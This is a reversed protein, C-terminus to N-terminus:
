GVLPGLTILLPYNWAGIILVVGYPEHYVYAGDFFNVLPKEPESPRGYKDLNILLHRIDNAVLETEFLVTEHKHRKLDKHVAEALQTENDVLFKLLNSLQKKRFKLPKTKGTQHFVRRVSDVISKAQQKNSKLTQIHNDIDIIAAAAGVTDDDNIIKNNTSSLKVRPLTLHDGSEIQLINEGSM